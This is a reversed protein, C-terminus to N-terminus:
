LQVTIRPSWGPRGWSAPYSLPGVCLLAPQAACVARAGLRRRGGGFLDAMAEGEAETYGRRRPEIRVQCRIAAAHVRVGPPGTARMRLTVAPAAALRDPEIATCSFTLEPM